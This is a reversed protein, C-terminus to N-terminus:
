WLDEQERAVKLEEVKRRVEGRKARQRAYQEPTLPPEKMLRSLEASSDPESSIDHSWPIVFHM